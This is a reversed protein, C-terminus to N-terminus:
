ELKINGARVVAGWREIESAVYRRFEAPPLLASDVGQAVFQAAVTPDTVAAQLAAYLRDRIADPLGAPAFLGAWAAMEMGPYGQEAATRLEPIGPSRRDALIALARMRGARVHPLLSAFYSMMKVEGAILDSVARAGDKYPVHVLQAGAQLRLMESALHGSGGAGTSAYSVGQPQTRTWAVFEKLDKAPVSPHVVVFAPTSSVRGICTFDRLVDYPMRPMLSSLTAHSANTGLVLTYGDPAARAVTESGIVGTAGPKNEIILSQGLLEGMRPVLLRAQLDTASGAGYPVVLRIPRNPYAAPQARAAGALLAASVGAAAPLAGLLALRLARRRTTM